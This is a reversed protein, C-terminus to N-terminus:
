SYRKKKYKKISENIFDVVKSSIDNAYNSARRDIVSITKRLQESKVFLAGVDLKKLNIKSLRKIGSRIKDEIYEIFDHKNGYEEKAGKKKEQTEKTFDSSDKNSQNQQNSSNKSKKDMM